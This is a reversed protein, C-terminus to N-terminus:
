EHRNAEADCLEILEQIVQESPKRAAMTGIIRHVDEAFQKRGILIHTRAAENAVTLTEFLQAGLDSM